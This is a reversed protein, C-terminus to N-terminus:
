EGPVLRMPHVCTEPDNPDTCYFDLDLQNDIVQQPSTPNFPVGASTTLTSDHMKQTRSFQKGVWAFAQITGYMLIMTAILTISFELTMQGLKQNKRVM